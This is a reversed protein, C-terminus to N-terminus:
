QSAEPPLSGAPWPCSSAGPKYSVDASGQMGSLFGCERPDPNMLAFVRGFPDHSPIGHPPELFIGLWDRKARGYLAVETWTDAGCLVACLTIVLIDTLLHLRSREVHPDEVQDFLRLLAQPAEVDM